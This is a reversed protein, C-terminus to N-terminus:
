KRCGYQKDFFSLVVDPVITQMSRGEREWALIMEKARFAPHLVPRGAKHADIIKCFERTPNGQSRSLYEMALMGDMVGTVYAVAAAEGAPGDSMMKKIKEVSMVEARAGTNETMVLSFAFVLALYVVRMRGGQKKARAEKLM